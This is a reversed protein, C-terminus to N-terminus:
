KIIFAKIIPRIGPPNIDTIISQRFGAMVKQISRFSEEKLIESFFFHTGVKVNAKTIIEMVGATHPHTSPVHDNDM